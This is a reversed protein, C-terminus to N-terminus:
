RAESTTTQQSTVTQQPMVTVANLSSTPLTASPAVYLPMPPTTFNILWEGIDLYDASGSYTTLTLLRFYLYAATTTSYITTTISGTGFTQTSASNV